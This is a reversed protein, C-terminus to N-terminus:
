DFELFLEFMPSESDLQWLNSLFIVFCWLDFYNSLCSLFYILTIPFHDANRQQQHAAAADAPLEEVVDDRAAGEM